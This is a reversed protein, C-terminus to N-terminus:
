TLQYEPLQILYSLYRLLLERAEEENEPDDDGFRPWEYHPTGNLLIKSLNVAYAPGNLFEDPPPLAPDGGFGEEIDFIGVEDLAVPLFTEALDTPLRFPDSPDSIKQALSFPDYTNGNEGFLFRELTNWRDPLTGTTLWSYHGPQGDAGPPNIGPWGAVNPPNFLEQNLATPTLIERLNDLLEQNPTLEAERLFGILLEVPSKIRAAILSDHYFHESAFLMEVVPAIEFNNALFVQALQSVFAEDPTPQVFFSYLKRCIHHAIQQSREAFILDIVGDYDYLDTKGMITKSNRDHRAPDFTANNGNNVDWGTLARAAEKIDQESYNESGNPGYQGMTFLELLERGYNENAQGKQNVFGDLYILMAPNLGINYVLTRFNGLAHFRLLKYYDYTLHGVSNSAKGQNASWQTVFHNHWFLTMKEILGLNRMAELWTRQLDYIENTGTSSSSNYWSPAEPLPTTRATEILRSVAATASGDNLARDVERKIAGFSTRRVLHAARRRDWASSLPSLGHAAARPDQRDESPSLPPLSRRIM